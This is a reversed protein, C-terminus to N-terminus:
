ERFTDDNAALSKGDILRERTPESAQQRGIAAGGLEREHREGMSRTAEQRYAAFLENFEDNSVMRKLHNGGLFQALTMVVEHGGNPNDAEPVWIAVKVEKYGHENSYAIGDEIISRAVIFDDSLPHAEPQPGEPEAIDAAPLVDGESIYSSQDSQLLELHESM